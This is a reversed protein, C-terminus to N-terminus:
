VTVVVGAARMARMARQGGGRGLENRGAGARGAATLVAPKIGEKGRQLTGRERVSEVRM